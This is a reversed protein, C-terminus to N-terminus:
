FNNTYHQSDVILFFSFAQIYAKIYVNTKADCQLRFVAGDLSEVGDRAKKYYDNWIIQAGIVINDYNIDNKKLKNINNVLVKKVYDTFIIIKNKEM